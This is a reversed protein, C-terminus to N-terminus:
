GLLGRRVPGGEFNILFEQYNLMRVDWNGFDDNIVQAWIHLLLSLIVAVSFAITLWRPFGDSGVPRFTSSHLPKM